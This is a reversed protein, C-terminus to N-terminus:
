YWIVYGDENIKGDDYLEMIQDMAKSAYPYYGCDVNPPLPEWVVEVLGEERLSENLAEYSENIQDSSIYYYHDEEAVKMLEVQKHICDLKIKGLMKNMHKEPYYEYIVENSDKKVMKYYVVIEGIM